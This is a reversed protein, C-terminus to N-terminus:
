ILERLNEFQSPSNDNSSRSANSQPSRGLEEQLATVAVMSSWAQALVLAVVLSFFGEYFSLGVITCLLISLSFQFEPRSADAMRTLQWSPLVYLGVIWVTGGVLGLFLLNSLFHNHPAIYNGHKRLSYERWNARSHGAVSGMPDMSMLEFGEKFQDFRVEMNREFISNEQGVLTRGIANAKLLPVSYEIGVPILLLLTATLFKLAAGFNFYKIAGVWVTAFVIVLYVNRSQAVLMALLIIAGCIVKTNLRMRQGFFLLYCWAIAGMIGFEGFSRFVGTTKFLGLYRSPKVSDPELIQMGTVSVFIALLGSLIFGWFFCSFRRELSLNTTAMWHVLVFVTTAFLVRSVLQLLEDSSADVVMRLIFAAIPFVLLLALLQFSWNGMNRKPWAILWSGILGACIVPVVWKEPGDATPRPLVPLLFIFAMFLRDIWAIM